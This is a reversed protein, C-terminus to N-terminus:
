SLPLLAVLWRNGGGYHSQFISFQKPHTTWRKHGEFILGHNQIFWDALLSRLTSKFPSLPGGQRTVGNILFSDTNGYATCIQCQVDMQYSHDLQAIELPLGYALVADYFGEPALFDFGKQQDWKLVFLPLDAQVAWLHLQSLFSMLDRGQVSHQTAIQSEPILLHTANYQNICLSLWTFPLSTLFNSLM